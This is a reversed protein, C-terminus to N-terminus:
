GSGQRVLAAIRDALAELPVQEDALEAEDIARPMGYVTCTEESQTLCYCLKEKMARVGALGDAGMGTMVVALMAGDYAQAVSRFLVDVAPRCSNEPPGDSLVIVQKAAGGNGREVLMHRGGPAIYVTNALVPEGHSAERVTLASKADLSGAMTATLGAPMHQVLLVPAGLDGPLQPILQALAGPGGTSIGIAVVSVGRVQRRRELVVTSKAPFSHPRSALPPSPIGSPGASRLRRTRSRILGLLPALLRRLEQGEVHSDQGRGPKSLVDVVGQELLRVALAPTTGRQDSVIVLATQPCAERLRLVAGSLAPSDEHAALLILDAPKQRLKAAAVRDNSATDVVEAGELASLSENLFKRGLVSDDVIMIKIADNM